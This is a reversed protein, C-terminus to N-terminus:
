NNFTNDKEHIVRLRCLRDQDPARGRLLMWVFVKVKLSVLVIWFINRKPTEMSGRNMERRFSNYSYSSSISPALIM